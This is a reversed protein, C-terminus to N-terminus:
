ADGTGLHNHPLTRRPPPPATPPTNVTNSRVVPPVAPLSTVNTSRTIPPHRPPSRQLAMEPHLTHPQRRQELQEQHAALCRQLVEPLQELQEQVNALREEMSSVREDALEQRANMDVVLEYVSNQVKAMDTITSANDMLKRQDMKVKRLSYIALLFKRQHTRVRGPNVRKVLKTYKYILWTERLVNAASNKLRKTFQTDMMFNHVHKEARTLELKRSVVAVLLATCGAGMMGCAVSISRGCYTNPVIDGYGVCLITVAILWMSNLLNVHDHDHYRECQRLTWSAIIWLSVMFVLLVTGPCITMLTKLVFRTNFNIRNLAGISRSSADTFLKSHLLMVRCILYLRLFMPLSLTVDVPVRRSETLGSHGNNSLKTTWMFYHEGPIPHIACIILETFIQVNRQWTMAIRWDDACNDIMFLQVELAHYACILGLVVLTSVTILTKIATSCPSGKDYFEASSLENELVMMGIGFMGMVLAYDSIRKRKEFLAKRRGLRYGVSPKQAKPLKREDAYRPYESHVGVLAIGPDEGEKLGSAAGASCRMAGPISLTSVPKRLHRFQRIAGNIRLSDAAIEAFESSRGPEHCHLQRLSAASRPQHCSTCTEPQSHQRVIKDRSGGGTVSCVSDRSGMRHINICSCRRRALAQPCLYTRRCHLEIDPFSRAGGEPGAAPPSETTIVPRPRTQPSEEPPILNETSSARPSPSSETTYHVPVSPSPETTYHAPVSPSPEKTYHAPVSPSPEKTYHAPVSPSPETTCHAPVSPSPETTYHVPVSPSPETTCHVPVSLSPETTCHAPVSPSPEITCHAPVSPSPETTCHVPVSRSPEKTYHAPM